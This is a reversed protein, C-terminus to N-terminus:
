IPVSDSSLHSLTLKSLQGCCVQIRQPVCGLGVVHLKPADQAFLLKSALEQSIQNDINLSGSRVDEDYDYITL